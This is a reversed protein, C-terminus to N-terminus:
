EETNLIWDAVRTTPSSPTGVIFPCNQIPSNSTGVLEHPTQFTLGGGVGFLVSKFRKTRNQGGLKYRVLLDTNAGLNVPNLRDILTEGVDPDRFFIYGLISLYSARPASATDSGGYVIHRVIRYDCAFADVVQILPGSAVDQYWIGRTAEIFPM